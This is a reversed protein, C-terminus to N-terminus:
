AEPTSTDDVKPLAIRGVVGNFKRWRAYEAKVNGENLGAEAAASLLDKIPTPQGFKASLTDALGWAQGCLTNPKPRRVGNQEPMREAEKKAAKAAKAEAKEAEKAEKALKAEAEKAAKAVLKAEKAEERTVANEAKKLSSQAKKLESKKSKIAAKDPEEAAELAVLEAKINEIIGEAAIAENKLENIKDTSM